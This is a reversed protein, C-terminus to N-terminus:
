ARANIVPRNPHRADSDGFAILGLSGVFVGSIVTSRLEGPTMAAVTGTFTQRMSYAVAKALEEDTMESIPKMCADGGTGTAGTLALRHRAL